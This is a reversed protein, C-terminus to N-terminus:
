QLDRLSPKFLEIAPTAAAWTCRLLPPADPLSQLGAQLLRPGPFKEGLIVARLAGNFNVKYSEAEEGLEALNQASVLARYEHESEWDRNKTTYLRGVAKWFNPTTLIRELEGAPTDVVAALDKYDVKTFSAQADPTLATGLDSRFKMDLARGFDAKDFVLCLGAHRDAYRDWMSARAWGRHFLTGDAVGHPPVIDETFCAIRAGNRVIRDLRDHLAPAAREGTAKDRFEWQKAERPDRTRAYPSLWLQRSELIQAGAGPSTYHYLLKTGDGASGCGLHADAPDFCTLLNLIDSPVIGHPQVTGRDRATAGM